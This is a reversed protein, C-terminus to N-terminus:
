RDKQRLVIEACSPCFYLLFLPVSPTGAMDETAHDVLWGNPKRGEVTWRRKPKIHSPCGSMSPMGDCYITSDEEIM